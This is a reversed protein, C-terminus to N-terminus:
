LPCLSMQTSQFSGPRKDWGREERVGAKLGSSSGRSEPLHRARHGDYGVEQEQGQTGVVKGRCTLDAAEM